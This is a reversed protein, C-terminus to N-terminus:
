NPPATCCSFIAILGARGRVSVDELFRDADGDVDGLFALYRPLDRPTLGYCRIDEVTRDDLIVFRAVHIAELEAFPVLANRPDVRGPARNMSALLQRLESERAPNVAALVMF